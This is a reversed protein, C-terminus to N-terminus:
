DAGEGCSNGVKIDDDQNEHRYEEDDGTRKRLRKDLPSLTFSNKGSRIM